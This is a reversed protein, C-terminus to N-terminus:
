PWWYFIMTHAVIRVERPPEATPANQKQEETMTRGKRSPDDRCAVGNRPLHRPIAALGRQRVTPIPSTGTARFVPYLVEAAGEVSFRYKPSGWSESATFEAVLM